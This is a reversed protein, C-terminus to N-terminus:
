RGRRDAGFLMIGALSKPRERSAAAPLAQVAGSSWGGYIVPVDDGGCRKQAMGAMAAMDRGVKEATYDKDDPKYPGEKLERSNGTAYRFFDWGVVYVGADRLWHSIVDEWPSWGGDGSGFIFIARPPLEDPEYIRLMAAGGHSLPLTEHPLPGDEDAGSVRAPWGGVLLMLAVSAVAACSPFRQQRFMSTGTNSM